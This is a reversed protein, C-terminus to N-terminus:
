LPQNSAEVTNPDTRSDEEPRRPTRKPERAKWIILHVIGPDIWTSTAEHPRKKATVDEWM